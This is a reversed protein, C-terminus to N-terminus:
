DNDGAAEAPVALLLATAVDVKWIRGLEVLADHLARVGEPDGTLALHVPQELALAAAEAALLAEDVEEVLDAHGLAILLDDFGSGEGMEWIARFGAINERLFLHSAGSPLGEALAECAATCDRLGLPEALKLDKAVAEIYFAADYLANLGAEPSDYPSGPAGAAALATAWAGGEGFAAAATDLDAAVGALAVRAYAARRAQVAEVGLSDWTGNANIDVQGPCVNEGPPSWLLWEIADLGRVNPLEAVTFDAALYGETATEQDVRCPNVTPWSYVSDRLDAGGVVQLASGLPGLELLEVRQWALLLPLAAAQAAAREAEGGGSEAWAVLAADLPAIEAIAASLAPAILTPAAETLTADLADTLAPDAAAGKGIACALDQAFVLGAFGMLSLWGRRDGAM